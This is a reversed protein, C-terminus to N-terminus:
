LNAGLSLIFVQQESGSRACGDQEAEDLSGRHSCPEGKDTGSTDGQFARTVDGLAGACGAAGGTAGIGVGLEPQPNAPPM